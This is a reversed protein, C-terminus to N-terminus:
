RKLKIKQTQSFCPLLRIVKWLKIFRSGRPKNVDTLGMVWASPCSEGYNVALLPFDWGNRYRRVTWKFRDAYLQVARNWSYHGRDSMWGLGISVKYIFESSKECKDAWETRVYYQRPIKFYMHVIGSICVCPFKFRAHVTKSQLLMNVKGNVGFTMNQVQTLARTDSRMTASGSVEGKRIM